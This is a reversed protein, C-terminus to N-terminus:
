RQIKAKNLLPTCFAAWRVGDRSQEHKGDKPCVEYELSM